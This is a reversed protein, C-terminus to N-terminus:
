KHYGPKKGFSIGTPMRTPSKGGCAKMSNHVKNVMSMMSSSGSMSKKSMKGKMKAM